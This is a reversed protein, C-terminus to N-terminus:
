QRRERWPVHGVHAGTKPRRRRLDSRHPGILSRGALLDRPRAAAFAAALDPETVPLATDPHTLTLRAAPFQTQAVAQAAALAAIAALRGAHIRLGARAMQAEIAGYWHGDRVMDKLLRNRERMARDYAIVAEAHAPDLSMTTRDLFRRRQDAGETWLRDMAPVLWLIRAIRALALQPAPKGDIRVQRAAGPEAWTEVEHGQLLATVKWGPALPRQTLDDTAAGRLGRGPSLLSIAEILNTKGAGNAGHVAVPRGDFALDARRHSRFHTLTLHQVTGTVARGKHM